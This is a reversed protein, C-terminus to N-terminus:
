CYTIARSALFLTHLDCCLWVLSCPLLACVYERHIVRNAHLYVLGLVTQRLISAVHKEKYPKGSKEQFEIVNGLPMFDMLIWVYRGKSSCGYYSVVTDHACTRLLDIERKMEQLSEPDIFGCNVVKAAL